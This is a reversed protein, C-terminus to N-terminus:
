SRVERDFMMPREFNRILLWQVTSTHLLLQQVTTSTVMALFSNFVWARNQQQLTSSWRDQQQINSYTSPLRFQFCNSYQKKTKFNYLLSKIANKLQLDSSEFLSQEFVWLIWVVVVSISRSPQSCHRRCRSYHSRRHDENVAEVADRALLISPHPM